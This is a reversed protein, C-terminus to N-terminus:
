RYGNSGSFLFKVKSDSCFPGLRPHRSCVPSDASFPGRGHGRLQCPTPVASCEWAAHWKQANKAFLSVGRARQRRAVVLIYIHIDDYLTSCIIMYHATSHTHTHTHTLKNMYIHVDDTNSMYVCTHYIYVCMYIYIYIYIIYISRIYICIYSIHYVYQHHM